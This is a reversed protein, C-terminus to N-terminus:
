VTANKEYRRAIGDEGAAAARPESLEREIEGDAYDDRM